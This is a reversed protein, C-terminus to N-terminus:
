IDGLQPRILIEEVVARESLSWAGFVSEAVDQPKMFREEPLGSGEWSATHTAGPLIATVRVGFPKLEERLTRTMGLLAFKSIGYSGGNVYPTISATSCINFIHGSRNNKMDVGLARTLRYASYLNSAIMRELVGEEEELISGPIFVGANNVLVDVSPTSTKIFDVFGSVQEKDSLDAAKFFIRASPFRTQLGGKVAQGDPEKRACFVLDFGAAAFRELVALGIGKTGGTVVISKSMM